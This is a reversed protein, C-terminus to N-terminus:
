FNRQQYPHLELELHVAFTFLCIYAKQREFLLGAYDIDIMEFAAADRVRNESLGPSAKM